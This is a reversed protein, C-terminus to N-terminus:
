QKTDGRRRMTATVKGNAIIINKNTQKKGRENPKQYSLNM